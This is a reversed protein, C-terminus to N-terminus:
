MGTGGVKASLLFLCSFDIGVIIGLLNMDNILYSM